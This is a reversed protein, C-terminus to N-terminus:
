FLLPFVNKLILKFFKIRKENENHYDGLSNGEAEGEGEEEPPLGLRERKRRRAAKLREEMLKQKRQAATQTKAQQEVTEKRLNKLEDQQRAREVEDTSFSYYGVGHTRAETFIFKFIFILIVPVDSFPPVPLPPFFSKIM